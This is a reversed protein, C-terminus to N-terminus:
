DALLGTEVWDTALVMSVFVTSAAGLLVFIFVAVRISRFPEAVPATM